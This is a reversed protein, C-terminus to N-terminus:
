QQDHFQIFVERPARFLINPIHPPDEHGPALRIDKMRELIREFALRGELRALPAGLCRHIGRGFAVHHKIVDPREVDLAAADTGWKLEDRNGSAFMMVVQSGGPVDVGGIRVDQIVHRQLWQIPSELRLTEEVLDKIKSRDAGLRAYVDPHRCMLIMMSALMHTTTLNGAFLLLDAEATLWGLAAEGDRQVQTRILESLFDDRPNAYRDEV